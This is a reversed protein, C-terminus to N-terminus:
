GGRALVTGSGTRRAETFFSAVLVVYVTGSPDVALVETMPGLPLMESHEQSWLLAFDSGSCLVRGDNVVGRLTGSCEVGIEIGSRLDMRKRLLPEYAWNGNRSIRWQGVRSFEVAGTRFTTSGGSTAFAFVAGSDSLQPDVVDQGTLTVEVNIGNTGWRFIKERGAEDFGKRGFRSQFLVSGGDAAVALRSLPPVTSDQSFVALPFAVAALCLASRPHM